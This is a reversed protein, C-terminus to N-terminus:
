HEVTSMTTSLPQASPSGHDTASQESTLSETPSYLNGASFHSRLIKIREYPDYFVLEQNEQEVFRLQTDRNLIWFVEVPKSTYAHQWFDIRPFVRFSKGPTPGDAFGDYIFYGYEEVYFLADPKEKYLQKVRNRANEMRSYLQFSPYHINTSTTQYKPNRSPTYGLVSAVFVVNRESAFALAPLYLALYALLTLIILSHIARFLKPLNSLTALKYSIFIGVLVLPEYYRRVALAYTQNAFVLAGLFLVLALPMGALLSEKSRRKGFIGLLIPWSLIVLFSLLGVSFIFWRADILYVLQELVPHGLVVNTTAPLSELIVTLTQSLGAPSTLLDATDISAASPPANLWVYLTVPVIVTSAATLFVLLRRLFIKINPFSLQLLIAVTAPLIFLSAYRVSYLVGFLLAAFAIYRSSKEAKCLWLFVFPLGAWLIIDTGSWWPTLFIPLLIALLLNVRYTRQGVKLPDALLNSALIAWGLWGILTAASYFLKLSLLLPLGLALLASILISFGPPWSTLTKSSPPETIDFSGRPSTETTTLGYGRVLRLAVELQASQDKGVEFPAVARAATLLVAAILFVQFVRRDVVELREAIRRLRGPVNENQKDSAPKM